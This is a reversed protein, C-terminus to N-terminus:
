KREGLLLCPAPHFIPSPESQARLGKWTAVDIIGTVPIRCAIQFERVAGETSSGFSGDPDLLAGNRNLLNQAEIVDAGEDDRRLLRDDQRTLVPEAM